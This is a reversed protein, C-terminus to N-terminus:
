VQEAILEVGGNCRRRTRLFVDFPHRVDFTSQKVNSISVSATALPYAGALIGAFRGCPHPRETESEVIFLGLVFDEQLVEQYVARRYAAAIIEFEHIGAPILIKAPPM